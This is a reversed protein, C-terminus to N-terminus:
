AHAGGSTPDVWATTGDAFHERKWIPVRRKLSEIVDTCGALAASRHAHSVAIAVSAEGVGLTGIRHEVAVRTGIHRQAVELAVDHLVRTAMAEYAEYDIRLVERGEHVERVNGVFISVAGAGPHEVRQQLARVDLPASTLAAHVSLTPDDAM